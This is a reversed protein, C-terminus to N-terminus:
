CKRTLSTGIVVKVALTLGIHKEMSLCLLKQPLMLLSSSFHKKVNAKLNVNKPGTPLPRELPAVVSLIIVSYM